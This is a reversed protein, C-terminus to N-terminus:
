KVVAFNYWEDQKGERKIDRIYFGDPALTRLSVMSSSSVYMWAQPRVFVSEAICSNFILVALVHLSAGNRGRTDM